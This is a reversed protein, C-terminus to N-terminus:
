KPTGRIISEASPFNGLWEEISRLRENDARLENITDQQTRILDNRDAVQTEVEGLLGELRERERQAAERETIAASQSHQREAQAMALDRQAAELAAQLRTFAACPEAGDPAM